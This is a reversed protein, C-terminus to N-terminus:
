KLLKLEHDTDKIKDKLSDVDKINGRWEGKLKNWKLGLSQIFDKVEKSPKCAFKLIAPCQKQHNFALNGHVIWSSIINENDDLQKKLSLLAGYLANDPLYNLGAKTIFEAKKILDRSPLNDEKLKTNEVTM